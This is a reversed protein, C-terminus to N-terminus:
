RCAVKKKQRWYPYDVYDITKGLDKYLILRSERDCLTLVYSQDQSLVRVPYKKAENIFKPDPYYPGLIEFFKQADLDPPLPGKLLQHGEIKKSFDILYEELEAVEATNLNNLSGSPQLCQCSLFSFAILVILLYLLRKM